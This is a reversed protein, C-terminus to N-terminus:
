NFGCFVIHFLQHWIFVFVSIIQNEMNLTKKILFSTVAKSLHLWSEGWFYFTSSNFPYLNRNMLDINVLYCLIHVHFCSVGYMSLDFLLVLDSFRRLSRLKLTIMTMLPDLPFLHSKWLSIPHQSSMLFLEWMTAVCVKEMLVKGVSKAVRCHNNILLM